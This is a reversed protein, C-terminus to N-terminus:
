IKQGATSYYANCIMGFINAEIFYKWASKKLIIQKKMVQKLIALFWGGLGIRRTKGNTVNPTNWMRKSIM